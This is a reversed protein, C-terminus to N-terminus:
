DCIAQLAKFQPTTLLPTTPGQSAAFARAADARAKTQPHSSMYVPLDPMISEIEALSDFFDAFGRTTVDATDLMTLAYTDAKAEAERTYSSNLMWEAMAVAVTGGAFDGLVLGLLGASGAARLAGRTSDRNEVHAIEHALVAGVAEPTDAAKLLGRMLVIQGGPAAFANVMEHNMVSVNLEYEVGTPATLRQTLEALAADGEPSSCILAGAKEGGMMREMQRVMSKGWAVEREIPIILAMTGAMAPLIVFIMLALAGAAMGVRTVVRRATGPAIDRRNLDPCSRTLDRVMQTDSVTLRATAILGSDCSHDARLGLVLQDTRAQDALARLADLPWHQVGEPLDPHRLTLVQASMDLSLAVDLRLGTEGDFYRAPTDM